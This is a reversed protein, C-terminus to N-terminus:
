PRCSNGKIHDGRNGAARSRERRSEQEHSLNLEGPACVFNNQATMAMTLLKAVNSRTAVLCHWPFRFEKPGGFSEWKSDIRGFGGNKM